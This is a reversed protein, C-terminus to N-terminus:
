VSGSGKVGLEEDDGLKVNGNWEKFSNFLKRNFTMHYSARTDMVWTDAFGNTNITLVDGVDGEDLSEGSVTASSRVVAASVNSNRDKKLQPGNKRIHGVEKCKYCRVKKSNSLSNSRTHGKSNNGREMSRGRNVILGVDDVNSSSVVRRKLEKFQLNDKVNNVIISDRGYLMTDIFNEYSKPLSCLLIIVLDEDDVKVGIIKWMGAAMTEEGVERLVEDTLSLLILSHAKELMANKVDDTM